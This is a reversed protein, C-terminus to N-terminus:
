SHPARLPTEPLDHESPDGDERRHSLLLGTHSSLNKSLEKGRGKDVILEPNILIKRYDAWEGWVLYLIVILSVLTVVGGSTTRVRADEVTKTFADLRTLRGKPPM